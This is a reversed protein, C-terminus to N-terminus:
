AGVITDPASTFLVAEFALVASGHPVQLEDRLEIECGTYALQTSTSAIAVPTELATEVEKAILDLTDDLDAAAKALAEVRVAITRRDIEDQTDEEAQEGDTYVLLCPLETSRVPYARTQFVRAGTTTLGTLATAVAERLQKRVHDAM